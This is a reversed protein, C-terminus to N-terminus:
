PNHGWIWRSVGWDASHLTTLSFGGHHPSAQSAVLGGRHPAQARCGWGGARPVDTDPHQTVLTGASVQASHRGWATM